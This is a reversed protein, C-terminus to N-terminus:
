DNRTKLIKNILLLLIILLNLQKCDSYKVAEIRMKSWISRLLLSCVELSVEEWEKKALNFGASTGM